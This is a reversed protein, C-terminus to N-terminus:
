PPIRPKEWVDIKNEKMWNLFNEDKEKEKHELYCKYTNASEYWIEHFYSSAWRITHMPRFLFQKGSCAIEVDPDPQADYPPTIGPLHMNSL